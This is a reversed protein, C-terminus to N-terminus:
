PSAILEVGTMEAPRRRRLAEKPQTEHCTLWHDLFGRLWQRVGGDYAARDAFHAGRPHAGPLDLRACGRTTWKCMM